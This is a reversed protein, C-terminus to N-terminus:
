WRVGEVGEEVEGGEGSVPEAVEEGTETDGDDSEGGVDDVVLGDSGRLLRVGVSVSVVLRAHLMLVPSRVTLFLAKNETNEKRTSSLSRQTASRALPPASPSCSHSNQEPLYSTTLTSSTRQRFLSTSPFDPASM